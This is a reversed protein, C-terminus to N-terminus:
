DAVLKAAAKTTIMSAPPMKNADYPQGMLRTAQEAARVKDLSTGEPQIGNARASQYAKLDSKTQSYMMSLNSNMTDAIRVNASQLCEAYSGHDKTKCGSRCNSM